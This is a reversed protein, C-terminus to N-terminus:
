ARLLYKRGEIPVEQEGYTSGARLLYKRSEM